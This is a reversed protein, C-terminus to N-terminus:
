TKFILLFYTIITVSILLISSVSTFFNLIIPIFILVQIIYVTQNQNFKKLLVHHIHNRDPYFPHSKNIIRKVVLRLLDFGPVCMIIFIDDAYILADTNYIKIIIVSISFSIISSGNNGLFCLNLYNLILFFTIPIILYIFIINNTIFFLVLFIQLTYLGCQLNIGDFMNFANIFLIFCLVTFPISFWGLFIKNKAFSFELNNILLSQDLILYTLIIFIKLILKLNPGLIKIDDYLYVLFVITLFIFFYKNEFLYSGQFEVISFNQISFLFLISFYFIFGGLIPTAKEHFKRKEDPHDYINIIKSIKKFNIFILSNIFFLLIFAIKASM